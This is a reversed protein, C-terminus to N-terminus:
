SKCRLFYSSCAMDAIKSYKVSNSKKMTAASIPMNQQPSSSPSVVQLRYPASACESIDGADRSRCNMDAPAPRVHTRERQFGAKSLRMRM